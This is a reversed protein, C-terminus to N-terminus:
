SYKKVKYGWQRAMKIATEGAEVGTNMPLCRDYKFSDHM